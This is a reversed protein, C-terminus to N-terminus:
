YGLGLGGVDLRIPHAGGVAGTQKFHTLVARSPPTDFAFSGSASSTLTKTTVAILDVQTVKWTGEPLGARIGTAKRNSGVVYEQGDRGLLRFQDDANAFISKGLPMPALRWFAVNEEVYTRLYRLQPSASHQRPDFGGWFYQGLKNGYKEATTPYGGGLFTGFCGEIVDERTFGDGKGQYANEDNVIPKGGSRRHSLLAADAARGLQKIKGQIIAHDHWPGNLETDWPGPSRHISVPTPYPLCSRIAEGAARIEGASYRPTKINWENSLCLWVNPYSGYRAAVYRLWPKPNGKLTSRSEQTDPGCLILDCILDQACGEAVVPDVRRAFWTPNPRFSYRGDDSQRGGEDLFPKLKPDPYRDGFLTFRLKRYYKANARVDDVPDTKVPGQKDRRSLFSYHTNGVVFPHSGDSRRYWRGDAIWFGPHASPVCLLTDGEHQGRLRAHNSITKVVEWQGPKTPLFRVKFVDGRSGGRGDGDWFGHVRITPEGSQHRFAVTLEIERAPADGPGLQPGHLSVEIVGFQPVKGLDASWATCATGLGILFFCVAAIRDSLTRFRSM